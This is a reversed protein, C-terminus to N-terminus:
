GRYGERALAAHRKQADKIKETKIGTKTASMELLERYTAAAKGKDVKEYVLALEYRINMSYPALELAREYYGAAAAYDGSAAENAAANRLIDLNKPDWKLAAEYERRAGDHDGAETLDLARTFYPAGRLRGRHDRAQALWERQSPEAEAVELYKEWAALAKEDDVFEYALALNFYANWLTPDKDIATKYFAIAQDYQRSAMATDGWVLRKRAVEEPSKRRAVIIGAAILVAFLISWYMWRGKGFVLELGM